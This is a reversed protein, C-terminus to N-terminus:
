FNLFEGPHAEDEGISRGNAGLGPDVLDERVQTRSAAYRSLFRQLFSVASHAVRGARAQSTQSTMRAQCATTPPPSRVEHVGLTTAIM